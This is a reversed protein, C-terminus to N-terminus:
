SRGPPAPTSPPGPPALDPETPSTVGRGALSVAGITVLAGLLLATEEGPLLVGFQSGLTAAAVPVGMQASSLVGYAWPQGFLRPGCHVAVATTGLALGLLIASPHEALDRLNLSTGLWVFFIPAFLGETVAFLQHSLRRTESAFSLALGVVFGALMVSVHLETAVTAVTFAAVLCIRLELALSHRESFDHLRRSYGRETLRHLVLALVGGAALVALAGLAARAAHDPDVVLPVLVICAADAVAIQPLLAVLQSRDGTFGDLVPLAISASSSALCVAYLLGHGTDFLAALGLGLPVSAVGIFLARVLGTRFGARMAPDRVPVHTGAVLMVMLFGMSALFSFTPDAHDLWGLGTQGIVIGVALEGVVVPLRVLRPLSLLPGMLAVLCILALAAFDM